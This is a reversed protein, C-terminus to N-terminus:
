GNAINTIVGCSFPAYHQLMEDAYVGFEYRRSKLPWEIQYYDKRCRIKVTGDIGSNAYPLMDCHFYITGPPMNPHLRIPILSGGSMSYKNLYQGIVAGALLTRDALGGNADMNMRFFPAGGANIIKKTMNVLEQASVWIENPSLRWNDWFSQLAADVEVIGGDTGATLATAKGTSPNTLAKFYSNGGPKFCYTLLGDFVLENKSNDASPLDSALQSTSPLSDIVAHNVTTISHLRENGAGVGAYWAYAVAGRVPTVVAEVAYTATAPSNGTTATGAASKQAAGGGFTDSTVDQNQRTISAEVGGAVTSRYFGENTLAVCIVRVIVNNTVTGTGTALATVTPTPTTGLNHSRNGGLILQEEGIMYSQLLGLVATAKVAQFGVGAYEAEFTVDDELGLGAYPAEYTSVTTAIKGSRKGESVGMCVKGTNIATIARWRTSTDGNGKVRAIKNRLPTLVPILRKAPKELDYNALGSAQVWSKQIDSGDGPKGLAEVMSDLTEKTVDSM